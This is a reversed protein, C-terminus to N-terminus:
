TKRAVVRSFGLTRGADERLMAAERESTPFGFEGAV